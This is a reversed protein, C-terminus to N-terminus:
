LIECYEKMMSIAENENDIRLLSRYKTIKEEWLIKTLGKYYSGPDCKEDDDQSDNSSDFVANYNLAM